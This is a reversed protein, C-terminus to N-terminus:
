GERPQVDTVMGAHEIEVDVLDAPHDAAPLVSELLGALDGSRDGEAHRAGM